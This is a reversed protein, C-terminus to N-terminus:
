SYNKLYFLLCSLFILILCALDTLGSFSAPYTVHVYAIDSDQTGSNELMADVEVTKLGSYVYPSVMDIFFVRRDNPKVNYVTLTKGGNTISYNGSGIDAFRLLDPPYTGFIDLTINETVTEPNLVDVRLLYNDGLVINLSHTKFNVIRGFFMTTSINHGARDTANATVAVSTADAIFHTCLSEGGFPDGPSCSTSGSDGYSNWSIGHVQVGSISDTATSVINLGNGIFNVELNIDPQTHDITTNGYVWSGTNGASDNARVRFEYTVGEQPQLPYQPGFTLNEILICDTENGDSDFIFPDWSGGNNRRMNYCYLGSTEEFSSWNLIFANNSSDGAWFKSTNSVWEGFNQGEQFTVVPPMGDIATTEEASWGSSNGAIDSASCRFKYM